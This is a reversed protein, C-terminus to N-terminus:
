LSQKLISLYTYFGTKITMLLCSAVLCFLALQLKLLFHRKSGWSVATWVFASRISRLHFAFWRQDSLPHSMSRKVFADGWNRQLFIDTFVWPCLSPQFYSYVSNKHQMLVLDWTISEQTVAVNVICRIVHGVFVALIIIYTSVRDKCYIHVAHHTWFYTLEAMKRLPIKPPLWPGDTRMAPERFGITMRRGVWGGVCQMASQMNVEAM